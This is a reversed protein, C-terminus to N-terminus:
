CYKRPQAPGLRRARNKINVCTKCQMKHVSNNVLDLLKTAHGCCSCHKYFRHSAEGRLYPDIRKLNATTPLEVAVYGCHICCGNIVEVKTYIYPKDKDSELCTCTFM